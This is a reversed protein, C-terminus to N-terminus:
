TIMFTEGGGVHLHWRWVIGRLIWYRVGRDETWYGKEGENLNPGHNHCYKKNEGGGRKWTWLCPPFHHHSRGRAPIQIRYTYTICDITIKLIYKHTCPIPTSKFCYDSVGILAVHCVSFIILLEWPKYGAVTVGRTLIGTYVGGGGGWKSPKM